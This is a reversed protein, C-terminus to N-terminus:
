DGLYAVVEIEFVLGPMGLAVVEVGTTNPFEANADKFFALHTETAQQAFNWGTHFITMRIVNKADAGHAKLLEAIRAYIVETQKKADYPGIAKGEANLATIGGLYLFDGARVSASTGYSEYLKEIGKIQGTTGPQAAPAQHSQLLVVATVALFAAIGLASTKTRNVM